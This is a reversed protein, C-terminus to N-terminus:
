LLCRYFKCEHQHIGWRERQHEICCYFSKKCKKCSKNTPINCVECIKNMEYMSKIEDFQMLESETMQSLLEIARDSRRIMRNIKREYEEEIYSIYDACRAASLRQRRTLKVSTSQMNNKTSLNYKYLLM